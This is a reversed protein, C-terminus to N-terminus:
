PQVVESISYTYSRGSADQVTGNETLSFRIVTVPVTLTLPVIASGNVALNGILYPVVPATVSPTGSGSLTRAVFRTIMTGVAPGPGNNTIQVNVMLTTGSSSKSAISAGLRPSGGVVTVVGEGTDQIASNTTSTARITFQGNKGAPTGSPVTVHITIQM